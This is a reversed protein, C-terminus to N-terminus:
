AHTWEFSTWSLNAKALMSVDFVNVISTALYCGNSTLKDPVAWSQFGRESELRKDRIDKPLFQYKHVCYQGFHRMAASFQLTMDASLARMKLVDKKHWGKDEIHDYFCKAVVTDCFSFTPTADQARRFRESQHRRFSTSPSHQPLGKFPLTCTQFLLPIGVRHCVKCALWQVIWRGCMTDARYAHGGILRMPALTPLAFRQRM